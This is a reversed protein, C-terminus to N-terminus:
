WETDSKRKSVFRRHRVEVFRHHNLISAATPPRQNGDTNMPNGRVDFIVLMLESDRGVFGNDFFDGEEDPVSPQRYAPRERGTHSPSYYGRGMPVGSKVIVVM